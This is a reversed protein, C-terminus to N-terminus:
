SLYDIPTKSVLWGECWVQDIRTKHLMAFVTEARNVLPKGGDNFSTNILVGIGTINKLEALIDWLLPHWDRDPLIQLRATGDEHCASKLRAIAHPKVRATTLMYPSPYACDFYEEM